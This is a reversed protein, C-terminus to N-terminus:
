LSMQGPEVMATDGSKLLNTSHIFSWIFSHSVVSKWSWQREGLSVQLGPKDEVRLAQLTPINHQLVYDLSIHGPWQTFNLEESM